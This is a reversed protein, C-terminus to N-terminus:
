PIFVIFAIECIFELFEILNPLDIGMFLGLGGGINNIFTFTDQKPIQTINLTTMDEVSFYFDTYGITEYTKIYHGFKETYCSELPCEKQCVWLFEQKFNHFLKNPINCHKFGPIAFLSFSFTCNYKHSIEKYICGTLCNSQHVPQDVPLMKCQNYPEPLKKEISTRQIEIEFYKNKDLWLPEVLHYSNLYNDTIYVRFTDSPYTFIYYENANINETYSENLSFDFSDAATNVTFLNTEISKNTFANFRFCEYDHNSMKFFELYSTVDTTNESEDLFSYHVFKPDSLFNKLRLVTDNRIDIFDSGVFSQNSYYDRQYGDIVCITITPFTMNVNTVSEINTIKDFKYYDTVALNINYFGVSFTVLLLITWTVKLLYSETTAIQPVGAISM